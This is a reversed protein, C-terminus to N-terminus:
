VSLCLFLLLLSPADQGMPGRGTIELIQRPLAPLDALHTGHSPPAYPHKRHKVSPWWRTPSGLRLFNGGAHVAQLYSCPDHTGVDVKHARAWRPDQDIGARRLAFSLDQLSRLGQESCIRTWSRNHQRVVVRIM